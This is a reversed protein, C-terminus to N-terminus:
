YVRPVYPVFPNIKLSNRNEKNRTARQEFGPNELIIFILKLNNKAKWHKSLNKLKKRWNM